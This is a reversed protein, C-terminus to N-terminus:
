PVHPVEQQGAERFSSSGSPEQGPAHVVLLAGSALEVRPHPTAVRNSVGRAPGVTLTDAALRFALGHTTIGGAEGGLPILSVRDGVAGLIDGGPPRLVFATELGIWLQVAMPQLAPHLLLGVNALTMDLRGGAAALVVAQNSGAALADLLALELDTEDKAPPNPLLAAGRQALDDRAESSLSDFDGVVRDVTLGLAAAHRAGGDAAIVVDFRLPPLRRRLLAPDGLDGNALILARREVM